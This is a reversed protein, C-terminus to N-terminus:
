YLVKDILGGDKLRLVENEDSPDLKEGNYSIRQLGVVVYDINDKIEEIINALHCMDDFGVIALGISKINKYLEKM